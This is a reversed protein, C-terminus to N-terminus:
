QHDEEKFAARCLLIACVVDALFIFQLVGYVAAQTSTLRSEERCRLVAALGALSTPLGSFLTYLLFWLVVFLCLFFFLLSPNEESHSTTELHHFLLGLAGAQVSMILLYLCPLLQLIKTVLVALSLEKGTWHSRTFYVIAAAALALASVSLCCGLQESLGFCHDYLYPLVAVIPIFLLWKLYKM